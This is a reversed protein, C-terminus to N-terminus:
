VFFNIFSEITKENKVAENAIVRLHEPELKIAALADNDLKPSLEAPFTSFGIIHVMIDSVHVIAVLQKHDDSRNPNHHYTLADSLNSPFKWHMALLGGAYTHSTEPNESLYFPVKDKASVQAASALPADQYCGLVLKGIDHLLGATFAEDSDISAYRRLYKSIAEAVLAAGISHRWFHEIAFPLPRRSKFASLISTTLALSHVRKQGLLVVANKLSSITNPIGVYASNALRLVKGTLAPDLKLLKVIDGASSEPNAVVASLRGLVPTLSPLDNIASSFPAIHDSPDM